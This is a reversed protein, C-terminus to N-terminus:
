PRWSDNASSDVRTQRMSAHALSADHLQSKRAIYELPTPRRREIENLNWGVIASLDFLNRADHTVAPAHNRDRHFDALGLDGRRQKRFLTFVQNGEFIGKPSWLLEFHAAGRM